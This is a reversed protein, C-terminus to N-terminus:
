THKEMMDIFEQFIYYSDQPGPASEPHYQISLLQRKSDRFGEVTHDNLNLHTLEVWPPLSDIDVVFGHNQSTIEVSKTQQHQVPHNAGHHGFKLKSTKGGLAIAMIQHGLCIGFIPKKGIFSKLTEIVETVAAPDGPGNSLFIGDPNLTLVDEASTTSPVVTIRCQHKVLLRLISKKIGLDFAVVHYRPSDPVESFQYVRSTTVKRALNQGELSPINKIKEMLRSGDCEQTSVIARLTGEKRLMRTLYRTDIGEIAPIHHEELFTRLSQTSRWNSPIECYEKVVLAELHIRDSEHDFPNIGTNGIHPYTMTIIQGKYSPDTLIEQYGSM